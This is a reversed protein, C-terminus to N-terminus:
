LRGRGTEDQAMRKRICEELAGRIRSLMQHAADLSTGLRGAIEAGKLQKEYRLALVERSKEPLRAMCERLAATREQADHETRSFADLLPQLTEPSLVTPQRSRKSRSQLILHGTIGRAWGGFTGAASDFDAHRRWLTLAAEQFVDEREHADFVFAGILGRLENEHRLLLTIFEEREDM